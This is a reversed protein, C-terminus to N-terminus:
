KKKPAAKADAAPAAAAAADGKGKKAVEPEAAPAVAADPEVEEKILTVHAVLATEDGLFKISGSHPLDSIHIAGYLELNAVDVDIHDPIDSPLCEIEVERMIQDLVGGGTKVGVPIGSLLVPVSVRMAKDMAIRKFDAHLLKGKIPEHQWDVIMAKALPAGEVNLDFITNHGSESHLIKTVVKPDVTVAVADIGAGYVTAPIKGAVRVRRAHNKNFKGTRPTAVVAEFKQSAM